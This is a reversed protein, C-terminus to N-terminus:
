MPATNSKTPPPSAPAPEGADKAAAKRERKERDAKRSEAQRRAYATRDKLSLAHLLTYLPDPEADSNERSWAYEWVTPTSILVIGRGLDPDISLVISSACRTMLGDRPAPCWRWTSFKREDRPVTATTYGVAEVTVRGRWSFNAPKGYRSILEALVLDFNTVHDEPLERLQARTETEFLMRMGCFRNLDEFNKPVKRAVGHWNACFQYVIPHLVVGTAPFRFGQSESLHESLVHFGDGDHMTLSARQLLELVTCRGSCLEQLPKPKGRTWTALVVEPTEPLKDFDSRHQGWEYGAFGTPAVYRKPGAPLKPVEAPARYAVRPPEMSLGPTQAISERAIGAIAALPLIWALQIRVVVLM